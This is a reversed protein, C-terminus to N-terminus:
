ETAASRCVELPMPRHAATRPWDAPSRKHAAASNAPRPPRPAACLARLKQTLVPHVGYLPTLIEDQRRAEARRKAVSRLVGALFGAALIFDQGWM